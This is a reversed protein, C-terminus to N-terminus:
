KLLNNMDDNCYRINLLIKKRKFYIVCLKLKKQFFYKIGLIKNYEKYLIKHM